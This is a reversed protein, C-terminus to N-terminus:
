AIFLFILCHTKLEPKFYYKLNIDATEKYFSFMFYMKALMLNSEIEYAM